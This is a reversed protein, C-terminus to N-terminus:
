ETLKLAQNPLGGFYKSIISAVVFFMASPFLSFLITILVTKFPTQQIPPSYNPNECECKSLEYNYRGGADLCSDIEIYKSYQGAAIMFIISSAFIITKFFRIKKLKIEM